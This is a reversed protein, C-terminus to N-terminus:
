MDFEVMVRVGRQRAHEVVSAIDQSPSKLPPLHRSSTAVLLAASIDVEQTYREQETYAGQWLKPHSTSEFPFSQSDVM